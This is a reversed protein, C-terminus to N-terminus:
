YEDEDEPATHRAQDLEFYVSSRQPVVVRASFEAGDAARVRILHPGPSVRALRFFGAKDTVSEAEVGSVSVNAGVLIRQDQINVARGSVTAASATVPVLLAAILALRNM